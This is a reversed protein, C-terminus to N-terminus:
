EEGGPDPVVFGAAVLLQRAETGGLAQYFEMALPSRRAARMLAAAYVIDPQESDPIRYIIASARAQRADSAYVLAADAHNHEVAVLSARAHETNVVRPRLPELIQKAALWQRAYGGLPVAASPLAIREFAPDLLDQPKKIPATSAGAAIVVLRNGAIRFHDTPAVLDRRVLDTVREEDASIFVDIPAGLRIQRALNSSAGFSVGVTTGPHQNEFLKALAQVPERLSAAAAIVLGEASSPPAPLIALALVLSAIPLYM